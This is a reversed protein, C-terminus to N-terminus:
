CGQMILVTSLIATLILLLAIVGAGMLIYRIPLTVFRTDPNFRNSSQYYDNDRTYLETDSNEAQEEEQPIEEPPLGNMKVWQNYLKESQKKKIFGSLKDVM